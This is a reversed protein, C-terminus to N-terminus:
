DKTPAFGTVRIRDPDIILAQKQLDDVTPLRKDAYLSCDAIPFPVQRFNSSYARDHQSVAGCRVVTQSDSFGRAVHGWRCTECLSKRGHHPTGGLVKFHVSV